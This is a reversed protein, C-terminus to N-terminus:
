VLRMVLLSGVGPRLLGFIGALNQIRRFYQPMQEPLVVQFGFREYFPGLNSRCMLYLPRPYHALLDEVLARAVGQHRFDQEVAISALELTGGRHPKVQGCGVLLGDNTEAVVFRQWDLGTPNIRVARILSRIAPFDDARAPRLFYDVL